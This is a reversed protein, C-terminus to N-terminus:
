TFKRYSEEVTHFQEEIEDQLSAEAMEEEEIMEALEMVDIIDKELTAFRETINKRDKFDAVVKQAHDSNGWFDPKSM